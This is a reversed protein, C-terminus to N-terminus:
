RVKRPMGFKESQLAVHGSVQGLGASYGSALLYSGLSEVTRSLDGIFLKIPIARAQGSQGHVGRYSCKRKGTWKIILYQM